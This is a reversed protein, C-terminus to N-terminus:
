PENFHALKIPRQLTQVESIEFGHVEFLVATTIRQTSRYIRMQSVQGFPLLDTIQKKMEERCEEVSSRLDACLSAEHVQYRVWQQACAYYCTAAFGTALSLALPLSILTEILSFGKM